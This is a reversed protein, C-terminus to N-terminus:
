ITLTQIAPPSGLQLYWTLSCHNRRTIMHVHPEVTCYPDKYLVDNWYRGIFAESCVNLM